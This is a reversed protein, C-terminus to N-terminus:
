QTITSLVTQQFNYDQQNPFFVPQLKNITNNLINGQLDWITFSRVRPLMAKDVQVDTRPTFYQDPIYKVGKVNKCIMLLDDWEIKMKNSDWTRYDFYKSIKIQMEKRIEDVVYSNFIEARFSIDIPQFEINKLVIGYSQSGYPKLETLNFYSEGEQLILDLEEESLDVGNQTLIALVVQGLDNIGQKYIKLINPNIKMFVQELMSITGRAIINVGEKIRKRFDDDSESDRGGTAIYENIVYSHGSPVPNLRNISLPDVNTYGGEQVSKVKIYGFGSDGIVFDGVLSFDVGATNSFTHTDEKYLTGPAGVVRIYTSSGSAPFRPSIGFNDAINDLYIGYASNPLIHSEVIAIDKVAKQGVKAIGYAMGSLVSHDSIKTVKDQKLFFIEAWIQKLEEISPVKIIM